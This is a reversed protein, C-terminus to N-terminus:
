AGARLVRVGAAEARRVMDATGRGGPFAVVLDPKGEDLMRQNRLPGAARGHKRWDAPFREVAVTPHHRDDYAWGIAQSDAGPACGSIICAVPHELEVRDLLHYLARTDVFDRGGCVLVRLGGM